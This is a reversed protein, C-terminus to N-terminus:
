INVYEQPTHGSKGIIQMKPLWEFSTAVIKKVSIVWIKTFTDFDNM